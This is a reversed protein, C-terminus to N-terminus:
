RLARIRARATTELGPLAQCILCHYVRATGDKSGTLIWNGTPSFSASTLPKTDRGLYFLLQGTHANWLGATYQSTTVIWHGDPSFSGSNVAFFHGVLVHLLRGTRTSWVRGTHDASTTVLELGNPSYEADTVLSSHGTLTHLLRGTSADWLQAIKGATTAVGLGGPSLVAHQAQTHIKSVLKGANTYVRLENALHVLFRGGGTSIGLVRGGAHVCPGPYVCVRGSATGVVLRGGSTYAIATGRLGTRRTSGESSTTAIDGRADLVAVRNGHAAASAIPGHMRVYGLPQGSTTLVVADRGGFDVPYRGAFLTQV